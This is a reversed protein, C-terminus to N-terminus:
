RGEVLEVTRVAAPLRVDLWGDGEDTLTAGDAGALQWPSANQDGLRLRVSTPGTTSARDIRVRDDGFTASVAGDAALYRDEFRVRGEGGLALVLGTKRDQVSAARGAMSVAGEAAEVPPEALMAYDVGWPGRAVIIRGEALRSFEPVPEEPRRAFVAVYYSGDDGRQVHLLDQYERYRHIPVYDYERGWRLTHRPTDVPEAIFFELDVGFQGLATFRNGSLARPPASQEGPADALFAKRDDAQEPTGIKESICWFQWATPQGGEVRDRLLLWNAGAPDDGKIFLTQRHWHIPLEAEKEVPPWEPLDQMHSHASSEHSKYKSRQMTQSIAGYDQRPLSAFAEIQYPGERYFHNRRYEHSGRPRAPLVRTMLLEEREAYGGAFRCGVPVGKAWFAVLSGNESPYGYDLACFKVYWEASTAFGHRFIFGELPFHDSTWDPAAAPLTPDLYVQSYGGMRTDGILGPQGERNWVWQQHRSYEPDTQSTARAMMGPLGWRAGAGARGSPPLAAYGAVRRGGNRPDGDGGRPDPPTYQKALYLFLRKMRPDSVFDRFGANRAAVAFALMASASVHAYNAVSEPWEGAPGVSQSLWREMMAEAPAVWEAAEPHEPIACALLGLNLVHSVTMNQNGSCFGREMSWNSPSAQLYALYAMQRRYLERQEATILPSDILADYLAVVIGVHRMRDFGGLLGLHGALREPLQVEEALDLEGTRLYVGLATADSHHPIPSRRGSGQRVAQELYARDPERQWVEQLQRRSLFVRPHQTDDACPWDLVFEHLVRDLHHGAAFPKRTRGPKGEAAGAAGFQWRRVGPVASVQYFVYGSGDHVLPLWKLKSRRNSASTWTGLPAAEVWAGADRAAIQLVPGRGPLLLTWQVKTTDRWWDSWPVLDCVHGPPEEALKVHVPDARWRGDEWVHEGWKNEYFEPIAELQLEPLGPSLALHWGDRNAPDDPNLLDGRKVGTSLAARVKEMDVPEVEVDWMARAQGAVLQVSITMTRGDAYEYRWQVAAFVPGAATLRTQMSRIPTPGYMRTGGFRTRHGLIMEAVPGPVDASAAPPDYKQNHLNAQLGFHPTQLTARGERRDITLGTSSVRDSAPQTPSTEQSPPEAAEARFHLTYRRKQRPKLRDVVFWLKARRIHQSGPWLAVHSLQVPVPGDPGALRVSDRHAQGEPWEVARGLLENEWSRDLPEEITFTTQGARSIAPVVLLAAAACLPLWRSFRKM